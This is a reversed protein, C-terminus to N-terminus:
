QDEGTYRPLADHDPLAELAALVISLGDTLQELRDRIATALTPGTVRSAVERDGQILLVADRVFSSLVGVAQVHVDSGSKARQRDRLPSNRWFLDPDSVPADPAAGADDGPLPLPGQVKLWSRLWVGALEIDPTIEIREDDIPAVLNTPSTHLAAAVAFLEEVTLRRARQPRSEINALVDREMRYGTAGELHDLFAAQSPWQERRLRRIERRAVESPAPAPEKSQPM